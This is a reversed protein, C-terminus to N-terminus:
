KSNKVFLTPFTKAFMECNKPNDDICFLIDYKNKLYDVIEKPDNKYIGFIKNPHKKQYKVAEEITLCNEDAFETLVLENMNGENDPMIYIRYNPFKTKVFVKSIRREEKKNLGIFWLEYNNKSYKKIAKRLSIKNEM